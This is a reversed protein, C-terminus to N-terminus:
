DARTNFANTTAFPNDKNLLLKKARYSDINSTIVDSSQKGFKKLKTEGISHISTLTKNFVSEPGIAEKIYGASSQTFGPRFATGTKDMLHSNRGKNHVAEYDTISMKRGTLAPNKDYSLGKSIVKNSQKSTSGMQDIGQTRDDKEYMAMGFTPKITYQLKM